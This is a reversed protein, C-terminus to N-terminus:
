CHVVILCVIMESVSYSFTPMELKIEIGDEVYWFIDLKQLGMSQIGGSVKDM